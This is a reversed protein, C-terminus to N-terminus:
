SWPLLSASRNTFTQSHEESPLVFCFFRSQSLFLSYSIGLNTWISLMEIPFSNPFLMSKASLSATSYKWNCLVHLCVITLSSLSLSTSAMNHLVKYSIFFFKSTIKKAINLYQFHQDLFLITNEPLFKRAFILSSNLSSAACSSVFEDKSGQYKFRHCQYYQNTKIIM